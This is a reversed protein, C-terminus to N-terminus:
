VKRKHPSPSKLLPAAIVSYLGNIVKERKEKRQDFEETIKKMDHKYKAYQVTSISIRNLLNLFSIIDSKSIDVKQGKARKLLNLACKLGDIQVKGWLKCRMCDVCGMLYSITRCKEIIEDSVNYMDYNYVMDQPFSRELANLTIIGRHSHAMKFMVDLGIPLIAILTDLTYRLNSVYEENVKETMLKYNMYLKRNVPDDNYFSCLHVSVSCHIGSLLRRLLHDQKGIKHIANWVPSGNYGTYRELVTKLDVAIHTQGKTNETMKIKEGIEERFSNLKNEAPSKEAKKKYTIECSAGCEKLQKRIYEPCENDISVEIRSFENITCLISVNNRIEVNSYQQQIVAMVEYSLFFVISWLTRKM